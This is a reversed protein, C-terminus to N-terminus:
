LYNDTNNKIKSKWRPIFITIKNKPQQVTHSAFKGVVNRFSRHTGDETTMLWFMALSSPVWLLKRFTTPLNVECVTWFGSLWFVSNDANGDLKKRCVLHCNRSNCPPEFIVPVFQSKNVCLDNRDYKFWRTYINYCTAHIEKVPIYMNYTHTGYNLM